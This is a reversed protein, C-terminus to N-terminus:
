AVSRSLQTRFVTAGGMAPHRLPVTFRGLAALSREANKGVAFVCAEPHLDLLAGLVKLGAENELRAPTRNSHAAGRKHPHWPYANWLVTRDAIGLKHLTGWVITASPESWPRMRSSLRATSIRVRPISGEMLLRESTFPIGSVKCGQYGAAEGVLVFAADVDLHSKLRRLRQAPADDCIDTTPDHDVWPNFTDPPTPVQLSKLFRALLSPRV